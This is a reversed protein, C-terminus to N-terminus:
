RIRRRDILVESESYVLYLEVAIVLLGAPLIVAPFVLPFLLLMEQLVAHGALFLLMQQLAARGALHLLVKQLAARGASHLLMAQLAASGASSMLM